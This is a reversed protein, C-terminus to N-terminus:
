SGLYAEVVAPDRAVAQPTGEAITKGFNLVVVRNCVASVLSMDHEVLLVGIGADAVSAIVDRLASTERPNMGAAPEDLLVIAPEAALARAIELRRQEGYPLTGARRALDTETMGTRQLLARARADDLAQPRAYAGARVNEGVSLRAFLRVNQYTRAIGARAVRHQSFRELRLAGLGITGSTPRVVGTIANILSTKGAGNPGILGVVTGRPVRLSVGDLAVVGGYRVTVDAVTLQDSTTAVSM